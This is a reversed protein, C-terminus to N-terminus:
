ALYLPAFDCGFPCTPIKSAPNLGNAVRPSLRRSASRRSFSAPCPVSLVPTLSSPRSTVGVYLFLDCARLCKCCTKFDLVSSSTFLPSSDISFSQTCAVNELLLSSRSNINSSAKFTSSLPNPNLVVRNPLFRAASLIRSM